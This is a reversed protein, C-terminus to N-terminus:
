VAVLEPVADKVPVAAGVADAVVDAEVEGEALRVPVDELLAVAAAVDASDVAETVSDADAEGADVADEEAEGVKATCTTTV